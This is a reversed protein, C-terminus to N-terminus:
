MLEEPTSAVGWGMKELVSGGLSTVGLRFSSESAVVLKEMGAPYPINKSVKLASLNRM